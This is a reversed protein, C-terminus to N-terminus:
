DKRFPNQQICCEIGRRSPTDAPNRSLADAAPTSVGPVYVIKSRWPLTRQKLRFIRTNSIEDLSRDNLLRTLPKHDTAVVLEDCGLTFFKTDELAWTVALAEGEIPAYRLEPGRLFRSGALTIKWGNTCCNPTDSECTCYKQCLWYGVGAKSWDASLCTKRKPDFIQVGHTIANVLAVKTNQFANELEETWKFPTKPSLLPKFPAMLDRLQSYHAVQNVLGFWARIDAIRKPSPFSKISELYKPLPKVEDATIRFGAFDIEKQCFQLKAPNLTIGHSGVLIMYDIVRWWHAALAEYQDWMACDDVCKTKQTVDAIVGDYRYTYGDGSAVFGQPAVRYRYRGFECIFTM